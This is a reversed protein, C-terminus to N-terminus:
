QEKRTSKYYLTSCNEPNLYKHATNMVGFKDVGRYLDAEENILNTNGLLDFYALNMAKNLISTNGYIFSSEYKNKVKEMEPASVYKTNLEEIIENISDNAEEMDAEKMLKGHIILLGPDIDATIFADIESFLKKRKILRASLRGSEGGALLDTIMDCEYFGERRAASVHWVKFIASAAVDREVVQTREETQEPEAILERITIKRREINGFWKEALEVALSPTIKGALALIANNPAYHSYFFDRTQSLTVDSIHSPDMGITPWRYPHVKYALPKLYLMSDGYPYNLYRQNFEEVVVKKQVELSKNSFDLCNMRDSELWFATEINEAPVTIYFNTIDSNTFANNEGGALLLPTDFEPIESTGGFMLHEFLHALGTASPDEDKSGVDYLLNVAVLPTSMDEHVIVRLGNDLTFKSFSVMRQCTITIKIYHNCYN